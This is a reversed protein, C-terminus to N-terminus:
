KLHRPTSCPMICTAYTVKITCKNVKNLIAYSTKFINQSLLIEIKKMGYDSLLQLQILDGTSRVYM